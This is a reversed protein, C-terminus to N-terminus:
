AAKKRQIVVAYENQTIYFKNVTGVPNHISPGYKAIQQTKENVYKHVSGLEEVKYWDVYGKFEDPFVQSCTTHLALISKTISPISCELILQPIMGARQVDLIKYIDSTYNDYLMGKNFMPGNNHALTWATDVFMEPSIEGYVMKRLTDAINGWPKGGYGGSFKGNNFIYTIATVYDGLNMDLNNKRFYEAASSSGSPISSYWKTFKAGFMEKLTATFSDSAHLHRAERTIILLTYYVMRITITNTHSVYTNSIALYQEPLVQQPDFKALLLSQAHNLMYFILAEQEVVANIGGIKFYQNLSAVTNKLNISSSDTLKVLPKQKFFALTKDHYQYM